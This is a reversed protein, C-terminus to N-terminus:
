FIKNIKSGKNNVIKKTAQPLLSEFSSTISFNMSFELFILLMSITTFISKSLFVVKIFFSCVLISKILNRYNELM